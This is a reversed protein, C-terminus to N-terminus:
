ILTCICISSELSGPRGQLLGACGDLVKLKFFSFFSVFKKKLVHISFLFDLLIKRVNRSLSCRRFFFAVLLLNLSLWLLSLVSHQASVSIIKFFDKASTM